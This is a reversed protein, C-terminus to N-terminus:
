LFSSYHVELEELDIDPELAPRVSSRVGARNIQDSFFRLKRSMEACRKVQLPISTHKDVYYFFNTLGTIKFIPTPIGHVYFLSLLLGFVILKLVPWKMMMNNRYQAIKKVFFFPHLAQNHNEIM